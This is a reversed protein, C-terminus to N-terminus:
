EALGLLSTPSQPLPSRCLLKKLKGTELSFAVMIASFRLLISLPANVHSTKYFFIDVGISDHIGAAYSNTRGEKNAIANFYTYVM